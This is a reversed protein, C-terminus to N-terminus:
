IKPVQSFHELSSYGHGTVLCNGEVVEGLTEAGSNVTEVEVVPYGDPQPFESKPLIDMQSADPVMSSIDHALNLGAPYTKAPTCCLGDM